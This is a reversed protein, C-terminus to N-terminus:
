GFKVSSLHWLSVALSLALLFAARCMFKLCCEGVHHATERQRGRGRQHLLRWKLKYQLQTLTWIYYFFFMAHTETEREGERDTQASHKRLTFHTKDKPWTSPLPPSPSKLPACMEVNRALKALPWNRLANHTKHVLRCHFKRKRHGGNRKSAPVQTGWMSYQNKSIVKLKMQAYREGERGKEKEKERVTQCIMRCARM